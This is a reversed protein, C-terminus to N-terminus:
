APGLIFEEAEKSCCDFCPAGSAKGVRGEDTTAEYFGNTSRPYRGQEGPRREFHDNM